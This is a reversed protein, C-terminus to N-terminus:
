RVRAGNLFLDAVGDAHDELRYQRHSLVWNTAMEDLMGFFCKAVVTASLEARLVGDIQGQKIVGRILELYDALITTSVLEMFKQSHRLEVQFVVALDRNSGVQQLHFQALRRLCAEASELSSLEQRARELFQTMALKFLAALIEDKSKFYLYITGDAVKARKAIDSVRAGAFGKAAFVAAAAQLIQEHKGNSAM